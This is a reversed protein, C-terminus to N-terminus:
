SYSFTSCSSPPPATYVPASYSLPSASPPPPSPLLPSSLFVAHLFSISLLLCFFSLASLRLPYFFCSLVLLSFSSLYHSIPLLLSSFVCSFLAIPINIHFLPLGTGIWAILVCSMPQIDKPQSPYGFTLPLLSPSLSLSQLASLPICLSNLNPGSQVPCVFLTKTRGTAIM